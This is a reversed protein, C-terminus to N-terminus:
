SDQLEHLGIAVGAVDIPALEATVHTLEPEDRTARWVRKADEDVIWIESSFRLWVRAFFESRRRDDAYGRVVVLRFEVGNGSVAIDCYAASDEDMYYQTHKDTVDLGAPVRETLM